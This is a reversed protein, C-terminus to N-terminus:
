GAVHTNARTVYRRHLLHVPTAFHIPRRLWPRFLLIM